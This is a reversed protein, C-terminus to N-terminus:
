KKILRLIDLVACCGHIRDYWACELKLCEPAGITKGFRLPCQVTM